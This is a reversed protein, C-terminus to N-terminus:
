VHIVAHAPDSVCRNLGLALVGKIQNTLVATYNLGIAAGFAWTAKFQTEELGFSVGEERCVVGGTSFSISNGQVASLVRVRERGM